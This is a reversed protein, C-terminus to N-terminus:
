DVIEIDACSAWAQDEGETDWRFGLVYLGPELGPPLVVRDVISWEFYWKGAVNDLRYVGFGFAEPVPPEFQTGDPCGPSTSPEGHPKCAPIPNRMWESGPPYTGNSTKMGEFYVRTGNYFQIAQKTGEFRLPKKQFCEETIDTKGNAPLRCLRYSYGGGHNASIGWVTEIVSGSRYTSTVVEPFDVDRADMGYGCGGRLIGNQPVKLPESSANSSLRLPRHGLGSPNGGFAGCPYFTSTGPARWPKTSRDEDDFFTRLPSDDPITPEGPIRTGNTYWWCDCGPKHDYIGRFAFKEICGIRCQLTTRNALWGGPNTWPPPFQLNGHGLSPVFTTALIAWSFLM